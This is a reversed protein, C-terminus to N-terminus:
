GVLQDRFPLVFVLGSSSREVSIGLFRAYPITQVLDKVVM